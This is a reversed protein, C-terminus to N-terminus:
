TSNLKLASVCQSRMWAKYQKHETITKNNNSNITICGVCVYKCATMVTNKEGEVHPFTSTTRKETEGCKCKSVVVLSCEIYTHSRERWAVYQYNKPPSCAFVNGYFACCYHPSLELIPTDFM